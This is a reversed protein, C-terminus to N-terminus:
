SNWSERCLPLRRFPRANNRSVRPDGRFLDSGCVRLADQLRLRETALGSKSDRRGVRHARPRGRHGSRSGAGRFHAGDHLPTASPSLNREQGRARRDQRPVDRRHPREHPAGHGPRARHLSVRTRVYAALRRAPQRNPGSDFRGPLRNGRRLRDSEPNLALARAIGIQQRQGGSFEHPYRTRVDSGLGVMELLELVRQRIQGHGLEGQIRMPEDILEEVKMRPNLSAYPDQFVMQMRTRVARLKAGKLSRFDEGQVIISGSTPEILRLLARGVTTKGSGSEGVLGLTEGRFIRFSVGDVAKIEGVNRAFVIGRSIPFYKRLDRVEVLTEREGNMEVDRSTGGTGVAYSTATTTSLRWRRCQRRANAARTDAVSWSLVAKQCDPCKPRNEPIWKLPGGEPVDLRPVSGLLGMTYPHHASQLRIRGSRARHSPRRVDRQRGSRPGRSEWDHSIWIVGLGMEKQLRKVLEIIQAQITVDLATTPEDAIILKPECAIAMAIMVRQRMGGSLQHPYSVLRRAPEAIGVFNLVGDCTPKCESAIARSAGAVDRM